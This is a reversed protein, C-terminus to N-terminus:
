RLQRECSKMNIVELFRVTFIDHARISRNHLNLLDFACIDKLKIFLATGIIKNTMVRSAEDSNYLPYGPCTRKAVPEESSLIFAWPVLGTGQSGARPSFRTVARRNARRVV